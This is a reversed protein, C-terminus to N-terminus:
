KKTKIKMVNGQADRFVVKPQKSKVWGDAVLGDHIVDAEDSTIYNIKRDTENTNQYWFVSTLKGDQDEACIWKLTGASAPCDLSYKVGKEM